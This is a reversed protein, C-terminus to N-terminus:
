RGTVARIGQGIETATLPVRAALGLQRWAERQAKVLCEIYCRQRGYRDTYVCGPNQMCIQKATSTPKKSAVMNNRAIVKASKRIVGRKRIILAGKTKGTTRKVYARFVDALSVPM